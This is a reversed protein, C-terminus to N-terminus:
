VPSEGILSAFDFMVCLSCQDHTSTPTWVRSLSLAGGLFTPDAEGPWVSQLSLAKTGARFGERVRVEAGPGRRGLDEGWGLSPRCECATCSPAGM